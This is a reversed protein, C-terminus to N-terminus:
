ERQGGIVPAPAARAAETVPVTFSVVAGGDARNTAWIRGGHAEILGRAVALGLGTGKPQPGRSAPREVRYFPRFLRPLAERPFGPGRDAVQVRVAGDDRRVAIWIKTHAPSYKAANEILNTVVQDIEVADVFVPPVNEQVDVALFHEALAPRLRAAAEEVLAGLDYWAKEPRLSGGQIRSLDLLNGVIRNLRQAEEEIAQAFEEREDDSWAIDRQRLSGASAIISALPTRLDHSVANLLATKLEDTRRLSEAETAEHRLRVREIALGLQAVVADLMREDRADFPAAGAARAVELRGIAPAGEEPGPVPVARQTSQDAGATAVEGAVVSAVPADDSGLSIRATALRLERRLRDAVSRLGHELDLDPESLDSVIARLLVAERERSEAEAARERAGAALQGTIIATLLFLVLAIWEEPDAITFQHLPVVFFWDFVLFAAVSSLVAPGRGFASATVLVAILYLMSVNAIHTRDLVAGILVSVAAVAGLAAGYGVWRPGFLRRYIMNVDPPPVEM